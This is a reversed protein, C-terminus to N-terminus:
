RETYLRTKLMKMNEVLSRADVQLNNKWYTDVTRQLEYSYEFDFSVRRQDARNLSVLNFGATIISAACGLDFIQYTQENEM